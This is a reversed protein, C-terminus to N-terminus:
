PSRDRATATAGTARKRGAGPPTLAIQAALEADPLETIQCRLQREGSLPAAVFDADDRGGVREVAKGGIREQLREFLRRGARKEHERGRLGRAQRRRQDTTARPQPCAWRGAGV